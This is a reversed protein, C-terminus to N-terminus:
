APSPEGGVSNTVMGDLTGTPAARHRRSRRLERGAGHRRRGPSSAFFGMGRTPSSPGCRRSTRAATTPRTPRSSRRQAHRADVPLDALAGHRPDRAVRRAPHGPRALAIAGAPGLPDAGLDRRGRPRRRGDADWITGCTATPTAAASGHGTHRCLGGGGVRGPLRDARDPHGTASRGSARLSGRHRGAQGDDGTTLATTSWTTWATGTAGPRVWRPARRPTSRRTTPRRRRRAPALPRPHVRPLRHRRQGVRGVPSSRTRTPTPRSRSTSCSCGCPRRSATRRRTSTPTTSSAAPGPPRRQDGRRLAVRRAGADGGKGQGSGNVKQFNGAAETFGIPAAQWTTTGTTSSTSTRRRRVPPENAQWSFPM